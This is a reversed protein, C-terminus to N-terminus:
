QQWHVRVWLSVTSVVQSLSSLSFLFLFLFLSFFLPYFMGYLIHCIFAEADSSIIVEHVASFLIGSICVKTTFLFFVNCSKYTSLVPIGPICCCSFVALIKPFILDYHESPLLACLCLHYKM